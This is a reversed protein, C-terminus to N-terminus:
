TWDRRGRTWAGVRVHDHGSGHDDRSGWSESGGLYHNGVDDRAWWAVLPAEISLDFPGGSVDPRTEVEISFGEDSALLTTVAVTIGDFLADWTWSAPPPPVSM